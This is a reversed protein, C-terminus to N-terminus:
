TRVAPGCLAVAVEPLARRAAGFAVAKRFRGALTRVGSAEMKAASVGRLNGAAPFAEAASVRASATMEATVTVGAAFM